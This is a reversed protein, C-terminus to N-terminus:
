GPFFGELPLVLDLEEVLLNLDLHSLVLGKIGLCLGLRIVLDVREELLNDRDFDGLSLKGIDVIIWFKSGWSYIKSGCCYFKMGATSKSNQGRNCGMFNVRTLSLNGLFKSKPRGM